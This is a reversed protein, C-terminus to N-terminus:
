EVLTGMIALVQLESNKAQYKAQSLATQANLLNLQAQRFELGDIQGLDYATQSREFNDKATAINDSQSRLVLLATKYSTFANLATSRINQKMAKQEVQRSRLNLQANKIATNNQGNFLTWSLSVGAQPGYNQSGILFPSNPNENGTFNYGANANISPLWAAKNQGVAYQNMQLQSAALLVDLNNSDSGALVEERQINQRISVQRDVLWQQDIDIGMIYNLNRMNNEVNQLGTVWAVSDNNLDVKANLVELQNVQGYEYDNKLRELREQSIKLAKALAEQNESLRALEYYVQSLELISNQIIQRAQLQSFELNEQALKYGYHRAMGDFLTYSANVSAGFNYATNAEFTRTESALKNKGEFYNWGYDGAVTVTPLYNNNGLSASNEAIEESLQALQINYNNALTQKLAEDFSLKEQAITVIAIIQLIISLIFKTKM